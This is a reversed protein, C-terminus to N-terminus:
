QHIVPPSYAAPNKRAVVVKTPFAYSTKTLVEQVEFGTLALLIRLEEETFSRITSFDQGILRHDAGTTEFFNSDWDLCFGESLNVRWRSERRYHVDDATAEHIIVQEPNIAPIFRSADIFDFILVGGSVLNDHSALFGKQLEEMKTLYSITRGLMLVADSPTQQRFTTINGVFFIAGPHKSRAIELMEESLDMGVYQLGDALFFPAMNGTGCGLELLSKTAHRELIPAYFQYEGPYDMFTRYMAEYVPALDHYLSDM